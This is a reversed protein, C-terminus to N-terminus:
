ITAVSMAFTLLNFIAKKMEKYQIEKKISLHVYIITEHESGFIHKVHCVIMVNSMWNKRDTILITQQKSTNREGKHQWEQSM